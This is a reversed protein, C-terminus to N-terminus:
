IRMGRTYVLVMTPQPSLPRDWLVELARTDVLVVVRSDEQTGPLAWVKWTDMPRVLGVAGTHRVVVVRHTETDQLPLVLGWAWALLVRQPVVHGRAVGVAVGRTCTGARVGLGWTGQLVQVEQAHHLRRCTHRGALVTGKLTHRPRGMHLGQTHRLCGVAVAQTRQPARM